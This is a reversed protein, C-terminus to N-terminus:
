QGDGQARAEAAAAEIVDRDDLADNRLAAVVRSLMRTNRDIAQEILVTQLIAIRQETSVSAGIVGASRLGSVIKAVHELPKPAKTSM